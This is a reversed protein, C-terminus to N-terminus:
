KIDAGGFICFGNITLTVNDKNTEKIVRKDSIGGFLCFTNIKINVNEPVFIDAGGFACFLDLQSGDKIKSDLLNCKAGGFVAGIKAVVIEEDTYDFNQSSFAAMNENQTKDPNTKPSVTKVILKIGIMIIILPVIIKWIMDYEFVNQAALLLLVGVALGIFNGFKDKSTFLGNLCPIIIFLTWWGDLSVNVDTIGFAGLIYIVGCAILVAGIIIGTLKKM